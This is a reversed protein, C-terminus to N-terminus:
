FAGAAMATREAGSVLKGVASIYGATRAAKGQARYFAAQQNSSQQEALGQWLLQQRSLEGRTAHEAMVELPTGGPTVGAAGYAARVAGRQRLIDQGQQQAKSISINRQQLGQIRQQEANAAHANAQAEGAYLEGFASLLASM